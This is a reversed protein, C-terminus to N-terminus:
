NVSELILPGLGNMGKQGARKMFKAEPIFLQNMKIAANYEM